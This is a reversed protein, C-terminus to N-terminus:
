KKKTQQAAQGLIAVIQNIDLGQKAKGRSFIYAITPVIGSVGAIVNLMENSESPTVFGTLVGAGLIATIISVWFETTKWGAKVNGIVDAM